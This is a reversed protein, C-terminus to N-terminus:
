CVAITGVHGSVTRWATYAADTVKDAGPVEIQLGAVARRARDLGTVLGCQLEIRPEVVLPQGDIGEGDLPALDLRPQRV